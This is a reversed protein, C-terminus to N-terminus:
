YSASNLAIANFDRTDLYKLVLDEASSFLSHISLALTKNFQNFENRFLFLISPLGRMKDSKRLEHLLHM